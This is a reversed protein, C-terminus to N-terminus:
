VGVAEVEARVDVTPIYIGYTAANSDDRRYCIFIAPDATAVPEETASRVPSM